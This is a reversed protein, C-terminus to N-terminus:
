STLEVESVEQRYLNGVFDHDIQDCESVSVEKVFKLKQIETMKEDLDEKNVYIVLFRSKKSHYYLDGYKMVKRADRNYYLYVILGVRHQRTFM